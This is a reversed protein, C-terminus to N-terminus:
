FSDLPFQFLNPFHQLVLLRSPPCNKIGDLISFFIADRLNPSCLIVSISCSFKDLVASGLTGRKVTSVATADKQSYLLSLQPKPRRFM